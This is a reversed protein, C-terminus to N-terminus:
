NVWNQEVYAPDVSLETPGATGEDHDLVMVEVQGDAIVGYVAGGKVEIIIKM